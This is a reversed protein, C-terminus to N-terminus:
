RRLSMGARDLAREVRLREQQRRQAPADALPDDLGLARCAEDLLDDYAQTIGQRRAMPTGPQLGLLDARVRVLDRALQEIPRGRAREPPPLVRELWRRGRVALEGRYLILGLALGGCATVVTMAIVLPPIASM